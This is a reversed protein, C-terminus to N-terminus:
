QHTMLMRLVIPKYKVHMQYLMGHIEKHCEKSFVDLQLSPLIM